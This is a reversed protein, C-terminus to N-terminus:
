GPNASVLATVVATDIDRTAGGVFLVRDGLIVLMNVNAGSTVVRVDKGGITTKEITGTTGAAGGAVSDLFGAGTIPVGPLRMVIVYSQTVGDKEATRAGIQVISAMSGMAATMATEMQTELAPALPALTYPAAINLGVAPDPKASEGAGVSAAVTPAVTPAATPAATPAVTPAATPAASPASSSGCAAVIVLILAGVM